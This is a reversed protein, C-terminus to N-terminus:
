TIQGFSAECSSIKLVTFPRAFVYKWANPKMIGSLTCQCRVKEIQVASAGPHSARVVSRMEIGYATFATWGRSPRAVRGTVVPAGRYTALLSLMFGVPGGLCTPHRRRCSIIRTSGETFAVGESVM